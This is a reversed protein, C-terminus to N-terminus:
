AEVPEAATVKQEATVPKILLALAIAIALGVASVTYAIAYSGYAASVYGAIVPGIFGSVGWSTYLVGFNTGYNKLGYYDATLSPFVSLLAGYGIGALAAGLMFGMETEYMPFLLMNIGQLVFVLLLTRIAGIKDSLMGMVVRGGSNFVALASVLFAANALGGQTAAISVINGILMLGASASFCFMVWLMYFQKTKLMERWSFDNGGDKNAAVYGAPAPAVYGAPPNVITFALPVSILLAGAGLFLFTNEIGYSGILFNTLPALYLPAIGFGGAILGCVLGKKSSHFWKMAAPSLCAYAFGIGAGVMGGFSLALVLPNGIAFSSVILGGSVLTCGLIVMARPGMRDQLVGSVLLCSAFVMVAVSYPMGADVASWGLEAQLAKSFVSWAYLVGMCLNIAIGAILIKM